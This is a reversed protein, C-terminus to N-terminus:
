VKVWDYPLRVIEGPTQVGPLLSLGDRLVRSQMTADMAAGFPNGLPFGLVAARPVQLQYTIDQCVSIGVTPIGASEIERQILGATQHSLECGGSIVVADVKQQQLRPIIEDSATQLVLKVEPIYGMMGFHVDACEGIFGEVELERLRTLPFVCTIDEDADSHDYHAHAIELEGPDTDVPIERISWDGRDRFRMNRLQPPVVGPSTNFPKQGKRYVGGLSILCVRSETLEKVPLTFPFGDVPALHWGPYRAALARVWSYGEKLTDLSQTASAPPDDDGRLHEDELVRRLSSPRGEDKEKM